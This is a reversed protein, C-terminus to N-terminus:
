ESTYPAVLADVSVAEAGAGSGGSLAAKSAVRAKLEATLIEGMSQADGDFQKILWATFHKNFLYLGDDAEVLMVSGREAATLSTVVTSNSQQQVLKWMCAVDADTLAPPLSDALRLWPIGGSGDWSASAQSSDTPQVM